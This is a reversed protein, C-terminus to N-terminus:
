EELRRRPPALAQRVFGWWGVAWHLTAAMGILVWSRRLRGALERDGWRRVNRRIALLRGPVWAVVYRRLGKRIFLRGAAREEMLLATMGKARGLQHRLLRWPTAARTNHTLEIDRSRYAGYGAEFLRKNVITDEGARIDPFWGAWDLAERLYSCHAPHITLPGSPRGPLTTSHDLFYSAWGATTDTGNHMVGTVMAYGRRHAALRAELSGPPLQVHSGPFSVFRGSAVALGANRAAGPLAPGDLRVLTVEPFRSAVIEATRDTGSVVVIVEIPESTEQATVSSVAREIRSEDDRSIVIASLVTRPSDPEPDEQGTSGNFAFPLSPPRPEWRRLRGPADLLHEYSEQFRREPDVARYKDFRQRRRAEDLGALHQIRVTSRVWRDRPITTPIPVFHFRDAPFRQGQEFPFLRGAWM